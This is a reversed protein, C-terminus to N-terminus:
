RGRSSASQTIPFREAQEGLTTTNQKLDIVTKSRALADVRKFQVGQIFLLLDFWSLPGRFFGFQM